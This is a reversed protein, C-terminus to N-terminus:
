GCKGYGCTLCVSCGETKVISSSGCKTCVEGMSMDDSPTEPSTIMPQDEVPTLYYRKLLKALGDPISLIQSPKKDSDEFRYWINKDSNIGELTKVFAKLPVGHQLGISLSRGLAELLTNINQGSKGMTLVIQLAKGEHTAVEVLMNGSGTEMHYSMAPMRKPRKVPKVPTPNASPKIDEVTKFTIPQFEKSGDRYITIGKCKLSYALKYLESIEEVTTSKPLNATSSIASSCHRQLSAQMEVRDKPKIDHAVVFTERIEKPIGRLNKLSGGNKAIRTLLDETYWPEGEYEKFVPNVMHMTTGDILNKTFVLGFCPECGYSCDCSIATSGTPAVTTHQSNAVGFKRVLDMTHQDNDTLKEFVQIADDKIIAWDEIPGRVSAIRASEGISATTITKMVRALFSKGEVSDYPIGLKFLTDSCGMIGIGIPRYRLTNEKFREDPFQMVSLLNNMLVTVQTSVSSLRDWDFSGDEKIFKFINISSLNCSTFPVLPQEGCNHVLINNAFFNHNKQTTIDYVDCNEVIKISRLRTKVIARKELM